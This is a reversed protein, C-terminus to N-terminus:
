ISVGPADTRRAERQARDARRLDGCRRSFWKFGTCSAGGVTVRTSRVSVNQVTAEGTRRGESQAVTNEPKQAERWAAYRPDSYTCYKKQYAARQEDTWAVGDATKGYHWNRSAFYQGCMTNEGHAVTFAFFAAMALPPPIAQAEPILLRSIMELMANTSPNVDSLASTFQSIAYDASKSSDLEVIKDNIQVSNNELDKVEIKYQGSKLTFHGLSHQVLNFNMQDWNTRSWFKDANNSIRQDFGQEVAAEFLDRGNVDYQNSATSAFSIQTVGIILYFFLNKM